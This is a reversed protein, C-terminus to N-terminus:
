GRMHSATIQLDLWHEVASRLRPLMTVNARRRDEPDPTRAIYGLAELQEIHRLATTMSGGSRGCLQSVAIPKAEGHAVYLEIIMDWSPDAFRVGKFCRGRERRGSLLAKAEGLRRDALTGSAAAASLLTEQVAKRPLRVVVDILDDVESTSAM